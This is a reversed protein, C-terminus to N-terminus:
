DHKSLVQQLFHQIHKELWEDKISLKVRVQATANQLGEDVRRFLDQDCILEGIMADLGKRTLIQEARERFFHHALFDRRQKAQRIDEKL